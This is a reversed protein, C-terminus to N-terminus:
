SPGDQRDFGFRQKSSIDSARRAKEEQKSVLDAAEQARNVNIAMFAIVPRARRKHTASTTTCLVSDWFARAEDM